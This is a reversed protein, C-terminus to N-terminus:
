HRRKEMQVKKGELDRRVIIRERWPKKSYVQDRMVFFLVLM